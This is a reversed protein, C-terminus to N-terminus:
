DQDHCSKFTAEMKAEMKKMDNQLETKQKPNLVAYIQNKAMVKAKMMDGILKAKKDVLSDVTSQDMTALVAQDNIQQDLDKMQDVDAKMNSKMTEMIPKIKEKQAADLRMSELMKKMGGGCGCDAFVAPSIALSCVLATTGLIKKFM